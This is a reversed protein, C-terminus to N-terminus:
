VIADLVSGLTSGTLRAFLRLAEDETMSCIGDCILRARLRPTDTGSRRLSEIDDRVRTPLLSVDTNRKTSDAADCFVDFLTQVVRKQGHQQSALAPREIVYRWTLQKLVDVELKAAPEIHLTWLGDTFRIETAGVYRQILNSTFLRLRVRQDLGGDYPDSIGFLTPFVRLANSIEEPTQHKGQKGWRTHVWTGFDERVRDDRARLREAPILGARYLDEVDHVAYTIDDAWDMVAAELSQRRDDAELGGRAFDFDESEEEYVGWKRLAQAPAPDQKWPYKLIGNLTARTLDLGRYDLNASAVRTVIRFSQANGEFTDNGFNSQMASQLQVEAVHGFPPHGIDHAHAAAETADANLPLEPLTDDAARQRSAQDVLMEALRRAIQAVKITHTLRNHFVHGELASVVQTVGALRRYASTYLVRDRDRQYQDRNDEAVARHRRDARDNM